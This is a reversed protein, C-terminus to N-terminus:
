KLAGGKRQCFTTVDEVMDHFSQTHMVGYHEHALQIAGYRKLYRYAQVDSLKHRKAFENILAIIYSLIDNMALVTKTPAISRKTARLANRKRVGCAYRRCLYM